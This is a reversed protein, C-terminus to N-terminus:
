QSFTLDTIDLYQGLSHLNQLLDNNEEWYRRCWEKYIVEGGWGRRLVITSLSRRGPNKKKSPLTTCEWLIYILFIHIYSFGFFIWAQIANSGMVEATGTYREVLQAILGNPLQDCQQARTLWWAISIELEYDLQKNISVLTFTQSFSFHPPFVPRLRTNGCSKRTRM